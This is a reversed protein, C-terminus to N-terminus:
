RFLLIGAMRIKPKVKRKGCIEIRDDSHFLYDRIIDAYMTKPDDIRARKTANNKARLTVLIRTPSAVGVGESWFNITMEEAIASPAIANRTRSYLTIAIKIATMATAITARKSLGFVGSTLSPTNVAMANTLPAAMEQRDPNIPM